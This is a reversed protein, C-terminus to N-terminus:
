FSIYDKSGGGGQEGMSELATLFDSEIFELEVNQTEPKM